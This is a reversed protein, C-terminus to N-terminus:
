QGAKLVLLIQTKLLTFMASMFCSEPGSFNDLSKLFPGWFSKVHKYIPYSWIIIAYLFFPSAFLFVASSPLM